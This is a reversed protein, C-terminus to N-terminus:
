KSNIEIQSQELPLSIMKGKQEASEKFACILELSALGDEGSCIPKQKNIICDVLHKVADVMFDRSKEKIPCNTQSLEKYGSFLDSEIIENYEVKFGAKSLSIKGKTGFIDLDFILYNKVDCAQITCLVGNKFKILGDFNPDKENPSFNNSKHAQIWGVDGFFFRLLDFMHSGTNAIGATYYFSAQQIRGLKGEKIFNKINQHTYDFRRQHDIMLIVGREQCFNIMGKANDLSNSIPKECFIAKVGNEVAVKVIEHHTENWTCISIIDPKEIELMDKYNTYTNPVSFRQSYKKLFDENVDSLAVLDINSNFFYAGAHTSVQKRKPDEDFGCGIRGCGIVAAKFKM